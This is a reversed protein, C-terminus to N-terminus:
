VNFMISTLYKFSINFHNYSINSWDRLLIYHVDSMLFGPCKCNPKTMIELISFQVLLFWNSSPSHGFDCLEM